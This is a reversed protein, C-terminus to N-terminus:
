AADAAQLKRTGTEDLDTEDRHSGHGSREEGRANTDPGAAQPDRAAHARAWAALNIAANLDRDISLGCSGCQYIRDALTLDASLEGCSSCTKSSPFWRDVMTVTGGRWAQKYGLMRALESWAADSISRALHRNALMGAINLDEIAVRPYQALRNTAQHLFHHRQNRVHEHHRGLRAAAKKRNASGRQKRAVARSLRRQKGLGAKHHGPASVREVEGGDATAAVAFAHLGRDVGIWGGGNAAQPEHHRAPHLDAAEVNLSVWWRDGRRSVTAFLIKGRGKAILRRLDRTDDHVRVQGIGPLTVSRTIESDGVRIAAKGGKPHKSRLRFSDVCKGKRKMRPFGVKRGKRDGKKSASFAALAKGLDVAAEEFVQQCVEARWRLGADVQEADSNADVAFVRGADATKKWGNFQNILDFGSWPVKVSDDRRRAMLSHKVLRLSTNYAFRSAGAHRGLAASQEVTPDLCFKFTSHRVVAAM